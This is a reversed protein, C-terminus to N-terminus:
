FKYWYNKSGSVCSAVYSQFITCCFSRIIHIDPIRNAISALDVGDKSSDTQVKLVSANDHFRRMM